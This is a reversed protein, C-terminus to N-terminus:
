GGELGWRKHMRPTTVDLFGKVIWERGLDCFALAGELNPELAQGRATLTLVVIDQGNQPLRGPEATLHLRGLPQANRSILYSSAYRSVEPLPLFTGASESVGGLTGGLRGLALDDPELVVHNVYTVECQTPTLRGLREEDLFRQLNELASVVRGRRSPYREYQEADGQKQWNYALWDNQLQVLHSGDGSFWLRPSPTTGLRFGIQSGLLADHLRELPMEYRPQEQITPLDNSFYRDWFKGIQVVNFSPPPVFGVAVVTEVVPPSSFTPFGDTM